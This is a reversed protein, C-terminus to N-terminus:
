CARERPNPQPSACALERNRRVDVAIRVRVCVRARFLSSILCTPLPSRAHLLFLLPYKLITMGFLDKYIPPRHFELADGYSSPLGAVVEEDDVQLVRRTISVGM